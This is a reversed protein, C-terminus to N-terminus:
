SETLMSLATTAYSGKPLSFRVRAWDGGQELVKFGEVRVIMARRMGKSGLDPMGPVRFDSLSLWEKELARKELEGQAGQAFRTEFGFLPATPVGNELVDGPQPGFGLAERERVIGNFMRAQYAHVFMVLLKRPLARLAGTYDRPNAALKGLIAREYKLHKPFYGLAEAYDKEKALRERATRDEEREEGTMTLYLECAKRFDNNIIAKGVEATVPRGAGFRQQGFLNPISAPLSPEGQLGRVTITFRNGRLAGLSVRGGYKWPRLEIDKIKIKDLDEKKVNWASVLQCTWARRDKTGAFGLRQMSVRLRKAIERLAGLTDWNKKEMFFLLHEGEGGQWEVPKGVEAVTGDELIEEVIFDEATEKIKM